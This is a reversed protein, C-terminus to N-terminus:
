GLSIVAWTLFASGSLHFAIFRQTEPNPHMTPPVIKNLWSQMKRQMENTVSAHTASLLVRCFRALM